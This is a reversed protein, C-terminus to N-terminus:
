LTPKKWLCSATMSRNEQLASAEAPWFSLPVLRDLRTVMLVVGSDFQDIVRRPQARDTKAGSATERFVEKCGTKGFQRVQADGNEGDM